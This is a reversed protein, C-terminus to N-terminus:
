FYLHIFNSAPQAKVAIVPRAVAHAKPDHCIVQDHVKVKEIPCYGDPTKVLTGAIFGKGCLSLTFFILLTYTTIFFKKLYHM